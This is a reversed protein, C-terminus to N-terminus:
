IKLHVYRSLDLNKLKSLSSFYSLALSTLKNISLNLTELATLDKFVSDPVSALVNSSLDLHQINGLGGFVNPRLKQINKSNLSLTTCPASNSDLMRDLMGATEWNSEYDYVIFTWGNCKAVEVAAADALNLGFGCFNCWVVVAAAKVLRGCMTPKPTREVQLRHKVSEENDRLRQGVERGEIKKQARQTTFNFVLDNEHNVGPPYCGNTV